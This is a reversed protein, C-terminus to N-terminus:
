ARRSPYCCEKGGTLKFSDGGSCLNNGKDSAGLDSCNSYSLCNQSNVFTKEDIQRRAVFFSCQERVNESEVKECSLTQELNLRRDQCNMWVVQDGVRVKTFEKCFAHHQNSSVATLCASRKTDVDSAGAFINIKNWLNGWGMSFGLALLVLVIVGLVILVLTGVSLDQGRKNEVRFM